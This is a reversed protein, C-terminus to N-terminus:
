PAADPTDVHTAHNALIEPTLPMSSDRGLTLEGGKALHIAVAGTPGTQLQEGAYVKDGEIVLRKTGNGAVAFVDGVVQRVTGILRAMDVGK